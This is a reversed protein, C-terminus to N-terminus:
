CSAGGRVHGPAVGNAAPAPRARRAADHYHYNLALCLFKSCTFRVATKDVLAILKRHNLIDFADRIRDRLLEVASGEDNQNDWSAKLQLTSRLNRAHRSTEFCPELLRFRGQVGGYSVAALQSSSPRALSGRVFDCLLQTRRCLDSGNLLRRQMLRACSHM